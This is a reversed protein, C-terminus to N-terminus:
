ACRGNRKFKIRKNTRKQKNINHPRPPPPRLPGSGTPPKVEQKIPTNPLEPISSERANFYSPQESRTPEVTTINSRNLNMTENLM